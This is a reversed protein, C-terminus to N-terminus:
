RRGRRCYKEVHAEEGMYDEEQCVLCHGDCHPNGCLRYADDWLPTTAEQLADVDAQCRLIGDLLTTLEVIMTGIDVRLSQAEAALARLRPCLVDTECRFAMALLSVPVEILSSVIRPTSFSM